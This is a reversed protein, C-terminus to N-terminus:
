AHNRTEGKGFLNSVCRGCLQPHDAHAGVDERVHWCRECKTHPSAIVTISDEVASVLEAKSTILVFRLDDGLSALLTHLEPRARLIVEAQLSSGIQGASRANELEKLVQARADRIHQWRALLAPEDKQAPLTHWTHFFV